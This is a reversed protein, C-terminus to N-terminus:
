TSKIFVIKQKDARACKEYFDVYSDYEDNNYVGKNIRFERYYKVEGQDVEIKSEYYGYDTEIIKPKPIHEPRINEPIKFVVTDREMRGYRITFDTKRASVKDPINHIKNVLNPKIFFRKGSVSALHNVKINSNLVFRPVRLKEEKYNFDLLTLGNLDYWENIFDRKEREDIRTFHDIYEYALAEFTSKINGEAHGNEDINVSIQTTLLNNETSYAPTHVIHGGKEDILLVDRDSTFKGLYGFPDTQSTCELWITDNEQPVCLFVHNFQQSPFDKDILRANRGANVLTYMSPVGLESLITKTYFTLAKCDGYGKEAVSSAPFPQWGGLGLQISVYRTNKQLYSYVIEVVKRQDTESRILSKIEALHEETLDDRGASISNIWKGFSEWSDMNGQFGEIEFDSPALKVRPLSNSRNFSYPEYEIPKVNNIAWSYIKEEETSKIIPESVKNLKYRLKYDKPVSVTLESSEVAIDQSPVANWSPFFLLGDYTQSYEVEITYPYETQTLDIYKGRADSYLSFGDFGSIDKIENQKVKRIQRGGADYVRANLQNVSRLKSYDIYVKAWSKGKPNLITIAYKNYYVGRGISKVEFKNIDLRMVAEANQKLSDPISSVRYDLQGFSSYSLLCTVLILLARNM